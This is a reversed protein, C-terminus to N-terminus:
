MLAAAAILAMAGAALARAGSQADTCATKDDESLDEAECDAGYWKECDAKETADEIEGCAADVGSTGGLCYYTITVGDTEWETKDNALCESEETCKKLQLKTFNRLERGM